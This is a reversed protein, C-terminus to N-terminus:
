VFGLLYIKRSPPLISSIGKSGAFDAIMKEMGRTERWAPIIRPSFEPRTLRPAGEEMPYAFDEFGYSM